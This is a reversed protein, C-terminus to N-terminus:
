VSTIDRKASSADDSQHGTLIVVIWLYCLVRVNLVLTAEVSELCLCDLHSPSDTSQPTRYGSPSGATACAASSLQQLHQACVAGCPWRLTASAAHGLSHMESAAGITAEPSTEVARLHMRVVITARHEKRHRDLAELEARQRALCRLPIRQSCFCHFIGQRPAALPVPTAVQRLPPVVRCRIVVQHHVFAAFLMHESPKFARGGSRVVAVSCRVHM